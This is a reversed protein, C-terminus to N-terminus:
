HHHHEMSIFLSGIAMAIVISGAIQRALPNAAFSRLWSAALGATILTPLTGMGFAYMILSGRIADGSAMATLLVFYVLGCPLWGWILGYALARTLTTVPLLKRSLPELKKWVPVGIKEIFILQPLWGALYLGVAVMVAAALYRLYIHGQEFGASQFLEMGLAGVLLGALMYSLIRGVNFATVFMFLRLKHKRISEPLGLSLAGIIGGCMGVCHVTSFLGLLFASAFTAPNDM